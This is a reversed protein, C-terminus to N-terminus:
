GLRKVVDSDHCVLLTSGIGLYIPIGRALEVQAQDAPDVFRIPDPLKLTRGPYFRLSM